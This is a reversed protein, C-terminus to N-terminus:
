GPSEPAYGLQSALHTAIDLLAQAQIQLAHIAALMEIWGKLGHAALYDLKSTMEQILTILRRLVGM